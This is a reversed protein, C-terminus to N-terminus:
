SILRKHVPQLLAEDLAPLEIMHQLVSPLQCDTIDSKQLYDHTTSIINWALRTIKSLHTRAFKYLTTHDNPGLVGDGHSRLKDQKTWEDPIDDPFYLTYFEEMDDDSNWKIENNETVIGYSEIANDWFPCGILHPEITNLQNVNNKTWKMCGRQTSGYLCMTPISYNRFEKRGVKQSLENLENQYRSTMETPLPGFSQKQKEDSLCLSLIMLCRVVRDYEDSKYGLLKDYNQLATFCTSYSDYYTTTIIHQIYWELLEWVRVTNMYQSIWWASHAKKQFIARIFYTEKNDDSPLLPPTKPTVRDPIIPNMTTHVLIHFLSHDKQSCLTLQYASLLLDNESLEDSALTNWAYILWQLHFPGKHWLWSEFLTSIAESICGSLILEQCWFLSENPLNRTSTYHLASQVEDLSYFHRSLPM